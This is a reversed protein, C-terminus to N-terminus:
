VVSSTYVWLYIGSTHSLLVEHGWIERSTCTMSVGHCQSAFHRGSFCSSKCKIAVKKLRFKHILCDFADNTSHKFNYFAILITSFLQQFCKQFCHRIVLHRIIVRAVSAIALHRGHSLKKVSTICRDKILRHKFPRKKFNDSYNLTSFPIM